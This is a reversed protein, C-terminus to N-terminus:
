TVFWCLLGLVLPAGQLLKMSWRTAAGLLLAAACILWLRRPADPRALRVAARAGVVVSGVILLFWVTKAIEYPLFALPALLVGTAPPYFLGFPRPAGFRGPVTDLIGPDYIDIGRAIGEGMLYLSPFDIGARSVLWSVAIAGGLLFWSALDTLPEKYRRFSSALRSGDEITANAM